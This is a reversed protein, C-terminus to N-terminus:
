PLVLRKFPQRPTEGIRKNKASLKGKGYESHTFVTGIPLFCIKIEDGIKM